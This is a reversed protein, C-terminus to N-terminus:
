NLQTECVERGDGRYFILGDREVISRVNLSAGDQTKITDGTRFRVRRLPANSASYERRENSARFVATVKRDTARTISGLGLEPETESIWRQGSRFNEPM